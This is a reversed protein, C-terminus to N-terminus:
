PITSYHRFYIPKGSPFYLNEFYVVIINACSKFIKFVRQINHTLANYPIIIIHWYIHWYIYTWLCSILTILIFLYLGPATHSMGTIGASQSDSPAHIVQPWSNSVLRSQGFYLSSVGDRSFICFNAPSPPPHRCDRSSPLRLCTFRKFGPPLPKLSSLWMALRQRM